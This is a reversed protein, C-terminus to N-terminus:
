SPFWTANPWRPAVLHIMISQNEPFEVLKAVVQSLVNIPPFLYIQDWRTWDLTFADTFPTMGDQYPSVYVPLKKNFQSAFLDIQPEFNMQSRLWDFNEESLSWETSQAEARSLRDAVVNHIGRIHRPMLHVRIEGCWDLLRAVARQLPLSRCSGGKKLAAIAVLSDSRVIISRNFAEAQVRQLCYLIALTEKVKIHLFGEEESWVGELLTPFLANQLSIWM